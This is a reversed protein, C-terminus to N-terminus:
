TIAYNANLYKCPSHWIHVRFKRNDRSHVWSPVFEPLIGLARRGGCAHFQIGVLKETTGLGVADVVAICSGQNIM